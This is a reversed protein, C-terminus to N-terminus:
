SIRTPSLEPLLRSRVDRADDYAPVRRLAYLFGMLFDDMSPTRGLGLGLLSDPCAAAAYPYLLVLAPDELSSLM